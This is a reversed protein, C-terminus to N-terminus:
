GESEEESDVEGVMAEVYKKLLSKKDTMRQIIEIWEMVVVSEIKIFNLADQQSFKQQYYGDLVKRTGKLVSDIEEIRGKIYDRDAQDWMSGMHPIEIKDLEDRVKDLNELGTLVQQLSALINARTTKETNLITEKNKDNPLLDVITQRREVNKLAQEIRSQASDVEQRAQGMQHKLVGPNKFVFGFIDLSASVGHDSHDSAVLPNMCGACLAMASIWLLKQQKM